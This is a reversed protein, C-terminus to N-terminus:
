HTTEKFMDAQIPHGAASRCLSYSFDYSERKDSDDLRRYRLAADFAKISIGKAKLASRIEQKEANLAKRQEDIRDHEDMANAIEQTVDEGQAPQTHGAAQTDQTETQAQETM